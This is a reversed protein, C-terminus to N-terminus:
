VQRARVIIDGVAVAVENPRYAWYRGCRRNQRDQLAQWAYAAHAMNDRLPQKGFVSRTNTLGMASEASRICFNVFAASWPVESWWQSGAVIEERVGLSAWYEQLIEKGWANSEVLMKGNARWRRMELITFWSITTQWTALPFPPCNRSSSAEDRDNLPRNTHTLWEYAAAADQQPLWLSQAM